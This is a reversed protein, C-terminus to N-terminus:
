TVEVVNNLEGFPNAEVYHNYPDQSWEGDIVLRYRYRGPPIAVCAEWVGHHHDRTMPTAWPDWDNFDGAIHIKTAENQPQVFLVGQSTARVGSLIEATGATRAQVTTTPKAQDRGDTPRCRAVEPERHLDPDSALKASLAATRASLARARELYERGLEFHDSGPEELGM